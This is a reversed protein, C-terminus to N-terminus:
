WKQWRDLWEENKKEDMWDDKLGKKWGDLWEEDKREDMWDDKIMETMSGIM